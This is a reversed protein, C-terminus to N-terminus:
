HKRAGTNFYFFMSYATTILTGYIIALIEM